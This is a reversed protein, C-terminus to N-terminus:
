IFITIYQLTKRIISLLLVPSSYLLIPLTELAFHTKWIVIYKSIILVKALPKFQFFLLNFINLHYCIVYLVHNHINLSIYIYIDIKLIDWWIHYYSDFHIHKYNHLSESHSLMQCCDIIFAIGIWTVSLLLM